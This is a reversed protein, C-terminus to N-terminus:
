APMRQRQEFWQMYKDPSFAWVYHCKNEDASFTGQLLFSEEGATPIDITRDWQSEIHLTKAEGGQTTSLPLGFSDAVVTLIDVFHMEKTISGAPLVDSLRLVLNANVEDLNIRGGIRHHESVLANVFVIKNPFWHVAGIRMPTGLFLM